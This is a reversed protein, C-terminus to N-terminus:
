GSSRMRRSWSTLLLIGIILLIIGLTLSIPDLISAGLILLIIGLVIILWRWWRRARPSAQLLSGSGEVSTRGDSATIRFPRTLELGGRPRPTTLTVATAAVRGPPVDLVGPKFIFRIISEPDDGRLSVRVPQAGNRNDVTARLMGRRRNALRLVSPELRIGLLEIAARSSAQFLSGSGEVSMRGDSATITFQRTWEQGPAPRWSDLRVNVSQRQGPGVDVVPPTFTFGIAREADRGELFLRLGSQGRRNDVVVQVIAGDADQM